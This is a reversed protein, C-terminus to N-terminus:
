CAATAPRAPTPAHPSPASRLTSSACRSRSATPSPSTALRPLPPVRREPQGRGRRGPCAVAAHGRRRALPRLQRGRGRDGRGRGDAARRRGLRRPRPDGTAPSPSPPRCPPACGRGRRPGTRARASRILVAAPQVSISAVTGDHVPAQLAPPLTGCAPGVFGLAGVPQAWRLPRTDEAVTEPHVPVLPEPTVSLDGGRGRDPRLLAMMWAIAFLYGFAIAPWRWSGSERRLVGSRDVHVAARLPLLGAARRAGAATFLPEGARPGEQVTMTELAGAPRRPEGGVAVQGLTAVFVERPRSPPSCASTSGGTSASRSSSRSSSSASRRGRLQPRHRVDLGRHQDAPDVGARRLDRPAPGAPQAAAVARDDHGPHDQRGQAPLGPVADWVALAVSRLSPLRYPPMEMYFPLLPGRSRGLRSFVWASAM